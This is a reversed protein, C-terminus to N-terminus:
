VIDDWRAHWEPQSSVTRRVILYTTQEDASTLVNMGVSGGRALWMVKENLDKNEVKDPRRRLQEARRKSAVPRGQTGTARAIASTDQQAGATVAFVALMLVANRMT